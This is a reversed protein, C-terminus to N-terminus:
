QISPTHTADQDHQSIALFAEELCSLELEPDLVATGLPTEIICKGAALSADAAVLAQVETTTNVAAQWASFEAPSVCVKVEADGSLRAFIDSVKKLLLTPERRLEYGIVKKAIALALRVVEKEMERFYRDREVAFAALAETLQARSVALSREYEAGLRIETERVALATAERERRAVEYGSLFMTEAADGSQWLKELPGATRTSKSEPYEYRAESSLNM